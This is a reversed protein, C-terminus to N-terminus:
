RRYWAPKYRSCTGCQFPCAPQANPSSLPQSCAAARLAVAPLCYNFVAERASLRSKNEQPTEPIGVQHSIRIYRVKEALDNRWRVGVCSSPICELRFPHRDSTSSFGLWAAKLVTSARTLYKM